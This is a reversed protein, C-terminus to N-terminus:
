PARRDTFDLTLVHSARLALGGTIYHGKEFRDVRFPPGLPRWTGDETAAMADAM